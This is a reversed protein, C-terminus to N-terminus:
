HKAVLIAEGTVVLEDNQNFVETKIKDRYKEM